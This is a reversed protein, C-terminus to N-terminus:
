QKSKGAAGMASTKGGEAALNAKAIDVEANAHAAAAQKECLIKEAKQLMPECRAKASKYNADAQKQMQETAASGSHTTSEAKEKVTAVVEKTKEELAHAAEKAKETISSGTSGAGTSQQQALASGSALALVCSLTLFTRHM